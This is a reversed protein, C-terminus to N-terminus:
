AAIALAKSKHPHLPAGSAKKFSNIVNNKIPLDNTSTVFLTINDAYAV